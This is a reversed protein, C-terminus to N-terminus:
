IPNSLFRPALEALANLLDAIAESSHASSLTVRLRASGVPVTPPRISSVLIGRALLEASLENAPATNGILIPQIATESPM